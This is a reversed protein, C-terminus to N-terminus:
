IHDGSEIAKMHRRLQEMSRLCYFGNINELLGLDKLEKITRAVTIRSVRLMNAMSQQSIKEQILIKGDYDVGSQRAFKLLMNCIKWTINFNDGERLRRRTRALESSTIKLIWLAFEHNSILEQYFTKQPVRILQSETMTIFTLNPMHGLIATQIFFLENKRLVNFIHENGNVTYEYVKVSGSLLVYCDPINKDGYEYIVYDKPFSVIRGIEEMRKIVNNYAKTIEQLDGSM